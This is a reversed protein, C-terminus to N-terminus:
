ENENGIYKIVLYRKPDVGYSETSLENYKSLEEHIVRRERSTMPTLKCSAKTELVKKAKKNALNLLSVERKERYNNADLIIKNHRFEKISNILYELSNLAIGKEGIVYKIDKGKLNVFFKNSNREIKDIEIDLSISELLKSIKEKILNEIVFDEKSVKIEKEKKNSKVKKEKFNNQKKIENTNKVEKIDNKKSKLNALEDKSLIIIEYKGKFSFFLFSSPKKLEKITYTEDKQLVINKKILNELETKNKAKLIIKNM